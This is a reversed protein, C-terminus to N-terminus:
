HSSAKVFFLHLITATFSEKVSKLFVQKIICFLKNFLITLVLIISVYHKLTNEPAYKM